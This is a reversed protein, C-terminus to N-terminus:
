GICSRVRQASWPIESIVAGTRAQGNSDATTERKLTNQGGTVLPTRRAKQGASKKAVNANNSGDEHVFIDPETWRESTRTRLYLAYIM